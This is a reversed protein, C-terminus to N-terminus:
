NKTILKELDTILKSLLDATSNGTLGTIIKGTWGNKMMGSKDDSWCAFFEPNFAARAYTPTLTTLICDLYGTHDEYIDHRIMEPNVQIIQEPLPVFNYPAHAVREPYIPNDHKPIM